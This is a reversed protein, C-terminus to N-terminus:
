SPNGVFALLKRVLPKLLTTSTPKKEIKLTFRGDKDREFKVHTQLVVMIAAALAVTEVAVFKDPAPGKILSEIVQRRQPEESLVVLAQRALEGGTAKEAPSIPIDFERMMLIRLEPTLETEFSGNRLEARAVASLIRIASADDLKQISELM